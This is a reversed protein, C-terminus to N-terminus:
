RWEAATRDIDARVAERAEDRGVGRGLLEDYRTQAHRIHARVALDIARPDLDKASATRGVRASYRECAHEAIAREIGPPANRYQERLAAAFAKVYEADLESRREADRLRRLERLEADELCESEAQELAAAQVLIGQREYRRRSRSWRVVVFRLASHQSARRTICADGSPVFVLHAMDACDMCLGREGEKRLFHGASLEGGCESCSSDHTVLQFVVEDDRRPM